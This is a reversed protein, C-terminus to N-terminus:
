TKDENPHSFIAVKTEPKLFHRLVTAVLTADAMSVNMPLTIPDPADDRWITLSWGSQAAKGMGTGMQADPNTM